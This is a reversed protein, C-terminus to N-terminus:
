FKSGLELGLHSLEEVGFCNFLFMFCPVGVFSSVTMIVINRIGHLSVISSSSDFLAFDVKFEFKNIINFM